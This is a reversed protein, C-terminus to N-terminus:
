AALDEVDRRVLPEGGTFSFFPIKAEDRFIDIIRKWGETDLEEAGSSQALALGSDDGCGAYCFRCRLVPLRTFDFGYPVRELAPRGEYAAKLSLFFAEVETAREDSFGPISELRGGAGIHDLLQAGTRNTKFVLNPPLIVVEDEVRAYAYPSLSKWFGYVWELRELTGTLAFEGLRLGFPLSLPM